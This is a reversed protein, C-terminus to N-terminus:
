AKRAEKQASRILAFVERAAPIRELSPAQYKATGPWSAGQVPFPSAMLPSGIVITGSGDSREQLSLEPLNELAFSRVTKSFIGSRILIRQNTV